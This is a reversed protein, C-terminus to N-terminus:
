HHVYIDRIVLHKNNVKEDSDSFISFIFIGEYAIQGNIDQLFTSRCHLGTRRNCAGVPIPIFCTIIGYNAGAVSLYTDILETLPPGPFHEGTFNHEGFKM